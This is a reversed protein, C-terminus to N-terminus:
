RCAPDVGGSRHFRGRVLSQAAGHGGGPTVYAPMTVPIRYGTGKGGTCWKERFERMLESLRGSAQPAAPLICGHHAHHTPPSGDADSPATQHHPCDGARYTDRRALWFGLAVAVDNGEGAKGWEIRVDENRICVAAVCAREYRCRAELGVRREGGVVSPHDEGGIARPGPVDPARAHVARHELPKDAIWGEVILGRKRRVALREGEDRTAASLGVDPDHIHGSPLRSVQGLVRGAVKARRPRRVTLPDRERGVPVACM